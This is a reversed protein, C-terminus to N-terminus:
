SHLLIAAAGFPHCNAVLGVIAPPRACLPCNVRAPTSPHFLGHSGGLYQGCGVLKAMLPFVYHAVMAGALLLLLLLLLRRGQPADLAHILHRKSFSFPFLTRPHNALCTSASAM